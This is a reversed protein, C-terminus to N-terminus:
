QLPRTRATSCDAGRAPDATGRASCHLEGRCAGLIAKVLDDVTGDRAVYGDLGMEACALIDAETEPVGFAVLPLEPNLERFAPVAQQRRATTVDLTIVQPRDEAVRSLAVPLESAISVSRIGDHCVLTEALWDSYLRVDTFLVVSIPTPTM